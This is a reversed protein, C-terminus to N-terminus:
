CPADRWGSGNLQLLYVCLRCSLADYLKPSTRLQLTLFSDGSSFKDVKLWASQVCSEANSSLPNETVCNSGLSPKSTHHVILATRDQMSPVIRLCAWDLKACTLLALRSKM